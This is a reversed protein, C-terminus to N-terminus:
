ERRQYRLSPTGALAFPIICPELKNGDWDQGKLRAMRRDKKEGATRKRDAAMPAAMGKREKHEPIVLAKNIGKLNNGLGYGPRWGKKITEKIVMANATSLKPVPVPSYSPSISIVPFDVHFTCPGFSLPIEIDGVVERRAGDFARVIM